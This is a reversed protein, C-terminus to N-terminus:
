GASSLEDFEDDTLHLDLAAVNQRVHVLSLSGPIPLIAPSRRLLWALAVQNPTADHGRAIRDLTPSEVGRLPFFPVFVIGERACYDIVPDWGREKLSYHNQVAAIPLLRRAREIVDVGVQSLGVLRIRGADVFERITGLSAELPTQPHFRHLYYLDITDTQLRRFSAEIQERLVAPEGDGAALGGKTAVLVGSGTRLTARRADGAGAGLAQGITTESDGGTYTHATDVLGIDSAIAHQIFAVHETTNTLRNTGLGIRTIERDGLRVTRTTDTMTAM